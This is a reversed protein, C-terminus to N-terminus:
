ISSSELEIGKIRIEIHEPQVTEDVVGLLAATLKEVDVEDLAVEAFQALTQESDYRTRFFRRDIFDQVRSRLPNFLAAIGLTSVVIVIPSQEGTLNEVLNQLLVVSGFYILVLLGTLLTYQLTRRIIIDIDWLRYRLIALMVSIPFVLNFLSVIIVFILNVLIRESGPPPPFSEIFLIWNTVGAALAALGLVVWKTQQRETPDSVNRFRYVQSFAGLLLTGMTFASGVWALDGGAHYPTLDGRSGILIGALLLLSFITYYRTWGPVFRGDPFIFMILILAMSLTVVFSHFFSFSPYTRLFADDANVVASTGVLILVLSFLFGIRDDARRWFILIGPIVFTLFTIAELGVQFGAYGQISFGIESLSDIEGSTLSLPPCTMESCPIQLEQYRPIAGGAWFGLAALSILLWLIRVGFVKWQATQKEPM